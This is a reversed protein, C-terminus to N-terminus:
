IKDFMKTFVEFSFKQWDKAVANVQTRQHSSLVRLNTDTHTPAILKVAKPNSKQANM